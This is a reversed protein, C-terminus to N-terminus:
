KLAIFYITLKVQIKMFKSLGKKFMSDKNPNKVFSVFINVNIKSIFLIKLNLINFGVEHNYKM